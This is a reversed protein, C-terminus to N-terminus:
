PTSVALAYGLQATAAAGVIARAASPTAALVVLPGRSSDTGAGLGDPAETPQVVSLVLVDQAILAAARPGADTQEALLSSAALVDIRTGPALLAAADPDALRVPVPQTGAPLGAAFGPGDLLRQSTVVEGRGLPAALVRGALGAPDALAADPLVGRAVRALTVDDAALRHGVPLDRAVVVVATTPDEPSRLARGLALISIGAAVAALLRRHRRMLRTPRRHM